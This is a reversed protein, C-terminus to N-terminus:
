WMRMVTDAAGMHLDTARDRDSVAYQTQVCGAQDSVALILFVPDGTTFVVLAGCWLGVVHSALGGLTRDTTYCGPAPAGHDSKLLLTVSGASEIAPM